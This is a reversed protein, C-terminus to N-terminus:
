HERKLNKALNGFTLFEAQIGFATCLQIVSLNGLLKEPSQWLPNSTKM